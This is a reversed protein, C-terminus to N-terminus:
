ADSYQQESLAWPGPIPWPSVSRTAGSAKVIGPEPKSDEMQDALTVQLVDGQWMHWMEQSPQAVQLKFVCVGPLLEPHPFCPDPQQGGGLRGM